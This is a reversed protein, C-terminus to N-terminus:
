SEGAVAPIYSAELEISGPKVVLMKDVISRQAETLKNYATLSLEPKRRILEHAYAVGALKVEALTAAELEELVSYNMKQVLKVKMAGEETNTAEKNTGKPYCGSLEKKDGFYAEAVQSRLATEEDKARSLADKAAIWRLALATKAEASLVPAAVIPRAM